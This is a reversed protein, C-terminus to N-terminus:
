RTEQEKEVHNDIIKQFAVAYDAIDPDRNVRVRMGELLERAKRALDTALESPLSM